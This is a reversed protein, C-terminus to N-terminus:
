RVVGVLRPIFLVFDEWYTVILLAIILPVLWPLVAKRVESFKKGTVTSLLYLSLGMPPTLLGIMINLEFIVGLHVPNIGYGQAIPVLIPVLLVTIATGELFMGLVLLLINLFLLFVYKNTTISSIATYIQRTLGEYSAIFAMLVSAVIITVIPVLMKFTETLIPFIDKLTMDKYVFLGVLISWIACVLAAETPTYWGGWIGAILLVPSMLAWFSSGFSRLVERVPYKQGRPYNNKKTYLWTMISLTIVMTIGPTFGAMFLAGVSVNGFIAFSVFPLSPPVIPGITSSAATVGISFDDDYGADKMSQIEIVGLGGIDALASGSMGSFIFSSLINVYGLGGRFRGVLTDAFHFIRKTIGGRNMIQGALMFFPIALFNFSDMAVVMKQPLMMLSLGPTLLFYSICGCLLSLYLPTGLLILVVIVIGMVQLAM